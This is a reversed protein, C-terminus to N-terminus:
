CGAAWGAWRTARGRSWCGARPSGTPSRGGPTPSRARTTYANVRKFAWVGGQARVEDNTNSLLIAPICRFTIKPAPVMTASNRCIKFLFAVERIPAFNFVNEVDIAPAHDLPVCDDCRGDDIRLPIARCTGLYISPPRGRPKLDDNLLVGALIAFVLLFTSAGYLSIAPGSDESLHHERHEKRARYTDIAFFAIAFGPCHFSVVDALLARSGVLLSYGEPLWSVAAPRRHPLRAQHKRRHIYFFRNPVPPAPGQEDLPVTTSSEYTNSGDRTRLPLWDRGPFASGCKHRRDSGM